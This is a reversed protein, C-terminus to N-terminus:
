LNFHCIRPVCIRRRRPPQSHFGRIFFSMEMVAILDSSLCSLTCCRATVTAPHLVPSPPASCFAICSETQKHKWMLAASHSHTQGPIFQHPLRGPKSNNWNNNNINMPHQAAATTRKIHRSFFLSSSILINAMFYKRGRHSIHIKIACLILRVYNDIKIPCCSLHGWLLIFWARQYCLVSAFVPWALSLTAYACRLSCNGPLLFPYFVCM